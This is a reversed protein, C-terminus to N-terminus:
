RSSGKGPISLKYIRLIQERERTFRTELSVKDTLGAKVMRCLIADESM